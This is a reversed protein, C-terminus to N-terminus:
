SLSASSMSNSEYKVGFDSRLYPSTLGRSTSLLINYRFCCMYPKSSIRTIYKVRKNTRAHTNFIICLVLHWVTLGRYLSIFKVAM